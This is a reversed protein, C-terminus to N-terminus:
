SVAISNLSLKALCRKAPNYGIAEKDLQIGESDVFDGFYRYEDAPSQAWSPIGSAEATLKLFTDIYQTFLGENGKQPDYQTVNYECEEHM